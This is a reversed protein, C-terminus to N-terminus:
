AQESIRCLAAKLALEYGVAGLGSIVGHAIDSFYSHRRFAERAHVNSLHVEIFPIAAGSLADRLAVSTHTFAAPNIIIFEVREDLARHVREVLEHEANSQFSTLEHGGDRAIEALRSDISALTDNGYLSPERTGLLNLNPGNLVLLKAM